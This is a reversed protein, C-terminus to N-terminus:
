FVEEHNTFVHSITGKSISLLGIDDGVNKKRKMPKESKVLLESLVLFNSRQDHGLNIIENHEFDIEKIL